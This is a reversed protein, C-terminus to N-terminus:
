MKRNMLKLKYYDKLGKMKEYDNQSKANVYAVWSRRLGGWM